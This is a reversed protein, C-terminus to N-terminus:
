ASVTVGPLVGGQADVVTGIIQGTTQAFASPAALAILAAVVACRLARRVGPKVNNWKMRESRRHSGDLYGHDHAHRKQYRTLGHGDSSTACAVLIQVSM